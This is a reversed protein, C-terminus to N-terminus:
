NTVKNKIEEKYKELEIRIDTYPKKIINYLINKLNNLIIDRKENINDVIFPKILIGNEPQLYFCALDNDIIIVKSLERGLKSIDKVYAAGILVCNERYLRKKFYKKNKEIEDIIKDAYNKNSSLYM